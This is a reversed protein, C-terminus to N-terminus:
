FASIRSRSVITKVDQMEAKACGSKNKTGTCGCNCM